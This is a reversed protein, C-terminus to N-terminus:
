VQPSTLADASPRPKRVRDLMAAVSRQEGDRWLVLPGLVGIVVSQRDQAATTM